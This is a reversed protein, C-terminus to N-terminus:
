TGKFNQQFSFNVSESLLNWVFYHIKKVLLSCITTYLKWTVKELVKQFECKWAFVSGINGIGIGIRINRIRIRM